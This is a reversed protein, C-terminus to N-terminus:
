IRKTPHALIKMASLISGIQYLFPSIVDICWNPFYYDNQILKPTFNFLNKGLVYWISFVRKYIKSLSPNIEFIVWADRGSTYSSKFFWFISGKYNAVLHEVVLDPDFGIKLGKKRMKVQVNTEEGYAVRKAKMGIDTPFGGLPELVNKKFVMVGGDIFGTKLEGIEKLKYGNSAYEDKFWRPKDYLYWPVYRGGFADFDYNKIVWIMREVYDKSAKTDDDLYAIYDTTAEKFGRNRAHSLGQENEQLAYFNNYKTAFKQAIEETEDTSNNNIVIVEYLNKAATQDVLSQLTYKLINARNYTCVIISILYRSM